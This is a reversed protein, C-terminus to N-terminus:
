NNQNSCHLNKYKRSPFIEVTGLADRGGKMYKIGEDRNTYFINNTDSENYKEFKGLDLKLSSFSVYKELVVFVELVVGEPVDFGEKRGNSCKGTSYIVYWIGEKTEYKVSYYWSASTKKGQRRTLNEIDTQTSVLPQVSKLEVL